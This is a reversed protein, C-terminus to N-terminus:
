PFRLGADLGLAAAFPPATWVSVSDLTATRRSLLTLGDLHARLFLHRGFPQSVGVRAGVEVLLVRASTPRDIDEGVMSVQGANVLLCGEYRSLVGCGAASLMLLRQSFGAGDARRTTAPVSLEAGLELALERWALMGFARGLLIPTSSRGFGVSAGGGLAYSLSRSRSARGSEGVAAAASGSTKSISKEVPPKPAPEGGTAKPPPEADPPTRADTEAAAEARTDALLQLQVALALAMTRALRPCDGSAMHFSQDGAWKGGADRWETRGDLAAGHAEISMSVHKQAAGSFPDYSLRAAVMAELEAESPCGPAATYELSIATEVTQARTERAELSWSSLTVLCALSGAFRAIM